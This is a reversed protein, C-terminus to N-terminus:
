CSNMEQLIEQLIQEVCLLLENKPFTDIFQKRRGM